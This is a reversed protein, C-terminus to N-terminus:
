HGRLHMLSPAALIGLGATEAIPHAIHPLVTRKKVGAKDYEGALAARGHAQLADLGPVALVGLGALEAKHTGAESALGKGIRQLLGNAEKSFLTRELAADFAKKLLDPYKKEVKARVRAYDASDGHMKAFGLASRAHQEDPIPYAKEGTNSRSAPVAFDKKPLDERAAQTLEAASKELDDLMAHGLVSCFSAFAKKEAPPPPPPPPISDKDTQPPEPSYGLRRRLEEGKEKLIDNKRDNM